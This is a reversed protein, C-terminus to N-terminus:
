ETYGLWLRLVNLPWNKNLSTPDNAAGVPAWRKAWFQVFAEAHNAKIFDSMAHVASRCTVDLAQEETTVKPLSCQVAKIINGEAKVVAAILKADVGFRLAIRRIDPDIPYTSM